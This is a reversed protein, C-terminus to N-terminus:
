DTTFNILFIAPLASFKPMRKRYEDVEQSFIREDIGGLASAVCLRVRKDLVALLETLAKQIRYPTEIFIHSYSPAEEQLRRLLVEKDGQGIPLYGHFTFRQGEFGSAMLAMTISSGGGLPKVIIGLRHALQVVKSGPDAICPLGADAILGIDSYHSIAREFEDKTFTEIPLLSIEQLPLPHSYRKLVARAVKPTECFFCQLKSVIQLIDYSPLDM